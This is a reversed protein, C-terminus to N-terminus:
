MNLSETVLSSFYNLVRNDRMATLLSVHLMLIVEGAMGILEHFVDLNALGLGRPINTTLPVSVV